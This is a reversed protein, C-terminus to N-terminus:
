AVAAIPLDDLAVGGAVIRGDAAVVFFSPFATIAFRTRLRRIIGITLLLNLLTLAGLLAVLASLHGMDDDGMDGCVAPTVPRYGFTLSSPQRYAISESEGIDPRITLAGDACPARGTLAVRWGPEMVDV